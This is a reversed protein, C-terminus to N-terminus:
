GLITGAESSKNVVALCVDYLKLNILKLIKGRSIHLCYLSHHFKDNDNVHTLLSHTLVISRLMVHKM